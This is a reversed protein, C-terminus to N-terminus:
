ITLLQSGNNIGIELKLYPAIVEQDGTRFDNMIMANLAM